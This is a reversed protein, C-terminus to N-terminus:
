NKTSNGTDSKSMGKVFSAYAFFDNERLGKVFLTLLEVYNKKSFDKSKYMIELSKLMVGDQAKDLIGDIEDILYEKSKDPLAHKLLLYLKHIERLNLKRKRFLYM